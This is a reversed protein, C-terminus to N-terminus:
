KIGYCIVGNYTTTMAAAKNNSHESESYINLTKPWLKSTYEHFILMCKRRRRRRRRPHIINKVLPANTMPLPLKCMDGDDLEYAHM